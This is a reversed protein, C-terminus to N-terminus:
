WEQYKSMKFFYNKEKIFTLSTQHDCQRGRDKPTASAAM